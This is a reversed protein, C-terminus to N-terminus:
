REHDQLRCGHDGKCERQAQLAQVKSAQANQRVHLCREYVNSELRKTDFSIHAHTSLPPLQASEPLFCM